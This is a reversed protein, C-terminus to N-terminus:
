DDRWPRNGTTYVSMRTRMRVSENSGKENEIERINQINWTKQKTMGSQEQEDREIGMTMDIESEEDPM